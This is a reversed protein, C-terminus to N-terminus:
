PSLCNFKQLDALELIERFYNDHLEHAIAEQTKDAATSGLWSAVNRGLATRAGNFDLTQSLASLANDSHLMGAAAYNRRAGMQAVIAKIESM